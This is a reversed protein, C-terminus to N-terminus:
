KYAKMRCGPTCAKFIASTREYKRTGRAAPCTFIKINRTYILKKGMYALLKLSAPCTGIKLYKLGQLTCLVGVSLVRFLTQCHISFSLAKYVSLQLVSLLFFENKGLVTQSQFASGGSVVSASDRAANLAWSSILVLLFNKITYIPM